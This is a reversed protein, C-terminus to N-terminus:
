GRLSAQPPAPPQPRPQEAGPWRSIFERAQGSEPDFAHRPLTGIDAGYIHIGICAESGDASVQHVDQDSTCCVTVRGAGLLREGLRVPAGESPVAYRIEREVGSMIGIVGWTGHDHIPTQQGVDWVACAISYSGDGAVSLPYMVYHDPDPRRSEAPVDLGGALANALAAAVEATIQYEDGGASLILRVQAALAAVSPTATVENM